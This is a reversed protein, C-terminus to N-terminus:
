GLKELIREYVEFHEGEAEKPDVWKLWLAHDRNAGSMDRRSPLDGPDAGHWVVNGDQLFIYEGPYSEILERSHERYYLAQECTTRRWTKVTEPSDVEASDFSAVPPVVETEFDMEDLDVTGFGHEAAVLLPNRDRRFPPAPWDGAPDHGMLWAGCADTSVAHDGAVLVNGIRGDGDWERRSQGVLGDIINLCPQTIMGLDPLVHSLRIIHHFYSRNRGHPPLPPLGFLNKLCLTVGMFGHNKMKAVSVVADAQSFCASLQYRSFMCGGGPVAYFEFPSDNSEVFTVGFDDLHRQFNLHFGPGFSTDTVILEASTRERLLRLAARLVADDVLEQRRGEFYTIRDEAWMMNLKIVM